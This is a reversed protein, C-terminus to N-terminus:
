APFTRDRLAQAVAKEQDNLAICKLDYQLILGGFAEQVLIMLPTRKMKDLSEGTM